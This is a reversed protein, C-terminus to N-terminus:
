KGQFNMRCLMGELGYPVPGGDRMVYPVPGVDRAEEDGYPVPKGDRRTHATNRNRMKLERAMGAGM